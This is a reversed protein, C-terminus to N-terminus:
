SNYEKHVGYYFMFWHTFASYFWWPNYTHIFSVICVVTAVIHLILVMIYTFKSIM